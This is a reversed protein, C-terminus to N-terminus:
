KWEIIISLGSYCKGRELNVEPEPNYTYTGTQPLKELIENIDKMRYSGTGSYTVNNEKAMKEALENSAFTLTVPNGNYYGHIIDDNNVKCFDISMGTNGYRTLTTIDMTSPLFYELGNDNPIIIKGLTSSNANTIGEEFYISKFINKGLYEDLSEGKYSNESYGVKGTGKIYISGNDWYETTTGSYECEGIKRPQEPNPTPTPTATPTPTPTCMAKDAGSINDLGNAEYFANSAADIKSLDLNVWTTTEARYGARRFGYEGIENLSDPIVIKEAQRFGSLANNGVRTIGEEIIITTAKTDKDGNAKNIANWGGYNDFDWTSGKGTIVILHDEYVKAWVTDGLQATALAENGEAVVPTPTPTSTPAPTATPVPTSTPTPLPSPTPEPTATATPVPSATPVPTSTATPEPTATATPVPTSTATPEPTSTATPEATPTATPAVTATPAITATPVVTPTTTPTVDKGTEKEKTAFVVAVVIAIVAIIALVAITIKTSKKM